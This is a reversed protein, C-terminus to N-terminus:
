LDTFSKVVIYRDQAIALFTVFVEAAAIRAVYLDSDWPSPLADDPPGQESLEFLWSHVAEIRSTPQGAEWSDLARGADISWSM